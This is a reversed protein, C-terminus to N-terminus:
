DHNLRKEMPASDTPWSVPSNGPFFVGRPLPINKYPEPIEVVSGRLPEGMVSPDTRTEGSPVRGGPHFAIKWTNGPTRENRAFRPSSMPSGSQPELLSGGSSYCSIKM